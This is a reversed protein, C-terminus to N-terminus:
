GGPPSSIGERQLRPDGAPYPCFLYDPLFPYDPFPAAELFSWTRAGLSSVVGSNLLIPSTRGSRRFWAVALGRCKSADLRRCPSAEHRDLRESASSPPEGGRGPSPALERALLRRAEGGGVREPEGVWDGVPERARVHSPQRLRADPRVVPHNQGFDRDLLCKPAIPRTTRPVRNKRTETDPITPSGRSTKFRRYTAPKSAGISLPESYITFSRECLRERGSRLDRGARALRGGITADNSPPTPAPRETQRSNPSLVDTRFIPKRM